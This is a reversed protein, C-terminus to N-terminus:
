GQKTDYGDSVAIAHQRAFRELLSRIQERAQRYREAEVEANPAPRAPDEVPWHLRKAPSPLVPCAEEACLTIAYDLKALFGPDLDSIGKSRHRSIDIGIERMAAVAGPRVFGCPVSGASAVEVRDGFMARALGEALQSRASNAVCLFLIKM